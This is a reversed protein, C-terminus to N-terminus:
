SRWSAPESWRPHVLVEPLRVLEELLRSLEELPPCVGGPPPKFGGPPKVGGPPPSVGGPPPKFGGPVLSDLSSELEDSFESLDLKIKFGLRSPDPSLSLSFFYILAETM